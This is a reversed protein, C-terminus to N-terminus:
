VFLASTKAPADAHADNGDIPQQTPPAPSPPRVLEIEVPVPQGFGRSEFLKWAASSTSSSQGVVQRVSGASALKAKVQALMALELASGFELELEMTAGISRASALRVEDSSACARGNVTWVTDGPKIRGGRAAAGTPDVSLVMTIRGGLLACLEIGLGGLGRELEVKYMRCTNLNFSEARTWQARPMAHDLPQVVDIGSDHTYLYGLGVSLLISGFAASVYAAALHIVSYTDFTSVESRTMGVALALGVGTIVMAMAFSMVRSRFSTTSCYVAISLLLTNAITSVLVTAGHFDSAGDGLAASLIPVALLTTSLVGSAIIVACAPQAM